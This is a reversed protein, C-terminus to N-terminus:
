KQQGNLWRRLVKRRSTEPGSDANVCYTEDALVAAGATIVLLAVCLDDTM